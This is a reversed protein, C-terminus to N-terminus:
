APESFSLYIAAAHSMKNAYGDLHPLWEQPVHRKAEPIAVNIYFDVTEQAIRAVKQPDKEVLGHLTLLNHIRDAFKIFILRWDAAVCALFRQHFEQLRAEKDPFDAKPRKSAGMVLFAIEDGFIAKLMEYTIETDEILDHLGGAIVVEPPMGIYMLQAMVDFVHELYHEGSDRWQRGQYKCVMHEVLNIQARFDMPIDDLNALFEVITM